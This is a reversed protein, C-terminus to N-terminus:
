CGWLRFRLPIRHSTGIPKCTRYKCDTGDVSRVLGKGGTSEIMSRFPLGNLLSLSISTMKFSRFIRINV